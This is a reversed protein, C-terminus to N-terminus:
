QPNKWSTKHINRNSVWLITLDFLKSEWVEDEDKEVPSCISWTSKPIGPSPEPPPPLVEQPTCTQTPGRHSPCQLSTVTGPCRSSVCHCESCFNWQPCAIPAWLSKLLFSTLPFHFDSQRTEKLDWSDMPNELGSYQLPYGNGEGPYRGLRPISGVDREQMIPLTKVLQAVLSSQPKLIFHSTHSKRSSWM